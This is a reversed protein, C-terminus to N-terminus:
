KAPAGTSGCKCLSMMIVGPRTPHEVHKYAEGCTPCKELANPPAIFKFKTTPVTEQDAVPADEKEKAQSVLDAVAAVDERTCSQAGHRYGAATPVGCACSRDRDTAPAKVLDAARVVRIKAAPAAPVPAAPKKLSCRDAGHEFSEDRANGCACSRLVVISKESSPGSRFQFVEGHRRNWASLVLADNTADVVDVITAVGSVTALVRVDVCITRRRLAGDESLLWLDDGRGVPARDVSALEVRVAKKDEGEDDLIEEVVLRM